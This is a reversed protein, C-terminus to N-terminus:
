SRRPAVGMVPPGAWICSNWFFSIASHFRMTVWALTGSCHGRRGGQLGARQLVHLHQVQRAHQGAGPGGLRQAVQAGLDDLHLAGAAAVVRAGPARGVHGVGGALGRALRGVVHAGVAVLLRHGDVEGAGLPLLQHPAQRLLAVHQHLVELGPAQRLVPQVIGGQAREVRAQHVAGDGAEPLAPRIRVAGAVVEQDLAHAPQHADGAAGVALVAAARHLHAHREGVDEGPQVGAGGDQGRQLRALVGAAALVDVQRQQVHAHRAQGVLAHVVQVAALHRLAHAVGVGVGHGVLVEGRGVAVHDQGHAVVPLERAQAVGHALGAPRLIRAEGGVGRTHRVAVFQHRQDAAHRHALGRAVPDGQQLLM